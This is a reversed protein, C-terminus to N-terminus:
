RVAFMGRLRERARYIRVEVAKPSLGLIDGIQQHSMGEATSLLLPEKLGQPLAAILEWLRELEARDGAETESDPREDAVAEVTGAPLASAFTLFRRVRQRRRWDRSKNVAIRVLWAILPRAPDYGHLGVYASAFSEQTVDFAEEGDGIHGRILRYLRDRHRRVIEGFAAKRGAITLAALESDELLTFDLSM